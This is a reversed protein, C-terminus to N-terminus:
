GGGVKEVGERWSEGADVDEIGEVGFGLGSGSGEGCEGGISREM